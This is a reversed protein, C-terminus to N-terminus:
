PHGMAIMQAAFAIVAAYVSYRVWVAAWKGHIREFRSM